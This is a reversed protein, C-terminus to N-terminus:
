GLELISREFEELEAVQRLTAEVLEAAQKRALEALVGGGVLLDLEDDPLDALASWSPQRSPVSPTVSAVSDKRTGSPPVACDSSGCTTESNQVETFGCSSPSRPLPQELDEGEPVDLWQSSSTLEDDEKEAPKQLDDLVVVRQRQWWALQAQLQSAQSEIEDLDLDQEQIEMKEVKPKVVGVSKEKSAGPLSSSPSTVTSPGAAKRLFSYRPKGETHKGKPARGVEGHAQSRSALHEPPASGALFADIEAQLASDLGAAEETAAPLPRPTNSRCDPLDDVAEATPWRPNHAEGNRPALPPGPLRGTPVKSAFSSSLHIQQVKRNAQSTDPATDPLFPAINEKMQKLKEHVEVSAEDHHKSMRLLHRRLQEADSLKYRSLDSQSCDWEPRLSRTSSAISSHESLLDRRDPGSRTKSASPRTSGGPGGSQRRM